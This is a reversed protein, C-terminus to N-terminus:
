NYANEYAKEIFNNTLEFTNKSYQECLIIHLFGDTKDRDARAIEFIEYGTIQSKIGKPIKNVTKEYMEKMDDNIDDASLAQLASIPPKFIDHFKPVIIRMINDLDKNFNNITYPPKYFVKIYVPVLLPELFKYKGKYENMIKDIAQEFAKSQDEETPVSPLKIYFPSNVILDKLHEDIYNMNHGKYFKRMISQRYSIGNCFVGYLHEIDIKQIRFFNEQVSQLYFIKMFDYKNGWLEKNEVLMYFEDIKESFKSNYNKEDDFISILLGDEDELEGTLFANALRIDEVLLNFPYINISIGESWESGINYRINLCKVQKDDEFVIKQRKISSNSPKSLLDLYNKPITHIHPPTKGNTYVDMDVCLPTSSSFGRKKQSRLQELVALHFQQKRIKAKMRNKTLPEGRFRLHINRKLRRYFFRSYAGKATLMYNLRDM